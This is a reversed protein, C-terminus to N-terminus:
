YRFMGREWYKVEYNRGCDLYKDYQAINGIEGNIDTQEKNVVMM